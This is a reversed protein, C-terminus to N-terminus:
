APLPESAIFNFVNGCWQCRRVDEVPAVILNKMQLYLYGLLSHSGSGAIPDGAPSLYIAPYTETRLVGNVTRAVEEWASQALQEPSSGRPVDARKSMLRTLAEVDVGDPNSVAEWLRLIRNAQRALDMFQYIGQWRRTVFSRERDASYALWRESSENPISPV